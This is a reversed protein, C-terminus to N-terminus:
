AAFFNTPLGPEDVEYSLVHGAWPQQKLEDDALGTRATTVFMTRYDAGGFVCSTPRAVPVTLVADLKGESTYRRLAWGDWLAIWICGSADVAIGDPVGDAEDVVVLPREPGREGTDVLYECCFLTRAATDVRYMTSNDPSWGLGNSLGVQSVVTAVALDPEICFLADSAPGAEENMTGAWFRGAVDCAGDNMRHSPRADDVAVSREVVGDGDLLVIGDRVGAIWGNDNRRPVAAGVSQGVTVVRHESTDACLRHIEGREIDVWHLENTRHDWRPGEGLTAAAEFFVEVQPM